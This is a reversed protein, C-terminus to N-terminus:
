PDGAMMSGCRAHRRRVAPQVGTRSRLTRLPRAVDAPGVGGSVL